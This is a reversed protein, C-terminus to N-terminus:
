NNNEPLTEHEKRGIFATSMLLAGIVFFTIIRGTLEMRWVDVIFLRIVVFGLLAAGYLRLSKKDNLKGYTYTIIGIITYIVLSIMTGYDIIAAKGYPAFQGVSYYDFASHLSLWLLVYVYISGVILLANSILPSSSEGLTKRQRWFLFGLGFIVLALILLVFFDNNFVEKSWARSTISELSLIAPGILILSLVEAIKIDKLIAYALLSIIGSEITYAIVLSPGSLEVSTAAALMAIAVGAYIFFPEKRQTMKFAAFAGALFVVMWASIILSKWEEQAFSMIWVLLFLGNGAAAILDSTIEKGKLKLIGLTNTIFFITAFAYAFLLLVGKDALTHSLLHPASYLSVIVLAVITLERWGRIAIVWVVGITIVLLYAFLSIYDPKPSNTLLPAVAALVISSLALFKANYKVSMLAVFATSLFMVILASFPDFFNYIERAAFITLLIVTSGLVLFVSGQNVYNRIRWWGIILIIVGATIGLVIRGMEGIWGHMFAYTVFWGFGILLILAGLKLLWDKKLWDIFQDGVTPGTSIPRSSIEKQSVACKEQSQIIDSPPAGSIEQRAIPTSQMLRELRNVRGKLSFIMGVVVIAIILNIFFIINIM